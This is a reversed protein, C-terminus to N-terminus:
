GDSKYYIKLRVIDALGCGEIALAAGVNSLTGHLQREFDGPHRIAGEADFDGGGGVFTLRGATGAINQTQAIPWRWGMNAMGPREHNLDSLGVRIRDSEAELM